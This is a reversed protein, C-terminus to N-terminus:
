SDDGFRYYDLCHARKLLRDEQVLLAKMNSYLPKAIPTNLVETEDPHASVDYMTCRLQQYDVKILKHISNDKKIVKESLWGTYERFM